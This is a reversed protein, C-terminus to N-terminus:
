FLEAAKVMADDRLHMPTTGAHNEEGYITAMYRQEGIIGTVVGIDKQENFLVGGQEIHLELYTEILDLDEAKANRVDEASIGHQNLKAEIEALTDEMEGLYSKSGILGKIVNGEEEAWNAVKITHEM